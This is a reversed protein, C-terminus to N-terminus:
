FYIYIYIPRTGSDKKKEAQWTPCELGLRVGVGTDTDRYCQTSYSGRIHLCTGSRPTALIKQNPLGVEFTWMVYLFNGFVAFGM